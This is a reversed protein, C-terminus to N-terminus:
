VDHERGAFVVECGHDVGFVALDHFPHGLFKFLFPHCLRIVM